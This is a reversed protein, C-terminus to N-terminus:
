EAIDLFTMLGTIDLAKRIAASPARLTVARGAEPDTLRRIRVLANLGSSDIFTLGSLDVAVTPSSEAAAAVEQIATAATAMDLEGRLHLVAGSGEETRGITLTEGAEDM